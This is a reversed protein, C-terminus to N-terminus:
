SRTFCLQGTLLGTFAGLSLVFHFHGVVFYTDHLSLDLASNGLIIGTSGGLLFMLLFVFVYFASNTADVTGSGSTSVLWNFLKTGTPLSILKTVSTFYSATDVELGVAYMHHGYVLSGLAAICFLANVM